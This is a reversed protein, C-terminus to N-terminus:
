VMGWALLCMVDLYTWAAIVLIVACIAITVLAWGIDVLWPKM